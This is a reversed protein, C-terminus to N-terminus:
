GGGHLWCHKKSFALARGGPPGETFSDGVAPMLIGTLRFGSIGVFFFFPSLKDAFYYLSKVERANLIWAYSWQIGAGGLNVFERIQSRNVGCGGCDPCDITKSGEVVPIDPGDEHLKRMGKCMECKVPQFEELTNPVPVERILDVYQKRRKDLQEFLGPLPPADRSTEVRFDIDEHVATRVAIRGDAAYLRDGKVFPKDLNYRGAEDACFPQVKELLEKVAEATSKSNKKKSRRM